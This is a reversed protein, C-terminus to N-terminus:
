GDGCQCGGPLVLNEAPYGQRWVCAGHRLKETRGSVSTIERERPRGQHVAIVRKLVGAIQAAGIPDRQGVQGGRLRNQGHGVGARGRASVAEVPQLQIRSARRM